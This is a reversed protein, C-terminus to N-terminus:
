LAHISLVLISLVHISLVYAPDPFVYMDAEVLKCIYPAKHAELERREQERQEEREKKKQKEEEMAERM